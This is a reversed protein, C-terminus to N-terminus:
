CQWQVWDSRDLSMETHTDDVDACLEFAMCTTTGQKNM